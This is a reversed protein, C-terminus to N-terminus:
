KNKETAIKDFINDANEGLYLGLGQNMKKINSISKKMYEMDLEAISYITGNKKNKWHGIIRVGSLNIKSLNNIQRSLTQQSIAEKGTGSASTYDNSAVSLYSALIRAVAARARNDASSMQLATDSIAPAQGVGHFLRGDKNNLYQTGENVWEPAGSIGMDSEVITKSACALMLLALGMLLAAKLYLHASKM